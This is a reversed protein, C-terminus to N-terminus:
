AVSIGGPFWPPRQCWDCYSVSKVDNKMTDDHISMIIMVILKRNVRLYHIASIYNEWTTIHVYKVWIACCAVCGTSGDPWEGRYLDTCRASQPPHFSLRSHLVQLEGSGFGISCVQTQNFSDTEFGWTWLSLLSHFTCLVIAWVCVISLIIVQYNKM